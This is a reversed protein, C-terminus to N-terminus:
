DLNMGLTVRGGWTNEFPKGLDALNLAGDRRLQVRVFPREIEIDSFSPAM